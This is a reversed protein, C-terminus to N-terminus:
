HVIWFLRDWLRILSVFWVGLLASAQHFFFAHDGVTVVGIQPPIRELHQVGASRSLSL